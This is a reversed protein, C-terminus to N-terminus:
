KRYKFYFQLHLPELRPHIHQVSKELIGTEENIYYLNKYRWKIQEISGFGHIKKVKVKKGDEIKTIDMYDVFKKNEVISASLFDPNSLNVSYIFQNESIDKWSISNPNSSIISVDHELGETKIVRGNKTYLSVGDESM